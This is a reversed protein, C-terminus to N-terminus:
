GLETGGFSDVFTAGGFLKTWASPISWQKGDGNFDGHFVQVWPAPM